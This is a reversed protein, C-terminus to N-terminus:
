FSPLFILSKISREATKAFIDIQGSNKEVKYNTNGTNGEYIM